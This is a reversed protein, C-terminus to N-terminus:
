ITKAPSTLTVIADGAQAQLEVNPSFFVISNDARLIYLLISKDDRERLYQTYSYQKTIMTKRIVHGANIRDELTRISIAPTFLMHGGTTAANEEGTHFATQYLHERGLNPIFDECVHANYSDNRTMALM